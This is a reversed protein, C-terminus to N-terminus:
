VVSKRDQDGDVDEDANGDQEFAVVPEASEGLEAASKHTIEVSSEGRASAEDGAEALAVEAHAVAVVAPFAAAGRALELDVHALLIAIDVEVFVAAIDIGVFEAAIGFVLAPHVLVFLFPM